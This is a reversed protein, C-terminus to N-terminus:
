ARRQRKKEDVFADIDFATAPGSEEDEILAARLAEVKMEQEELLRLGARVMESTSDYRGAAIREEVFEAFHNGLTISTNKTM